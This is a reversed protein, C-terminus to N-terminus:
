ENLLIEAMGDLKSKVSRWEPMVRDLLRYYRESHNHEKLHCLEHCIVYDIGDKPAKILHPNLSLVGKPSCSGWQKQMPTIKWTPTTSVWAIRNAHFALRRQIYEYSRQQYWGGLLGKITQLNVEPSVVELRGHVLKVSSSKDPSMLIKLVYRRGLYFYTEGSM